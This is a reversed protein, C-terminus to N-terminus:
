GKYPRKVVDNYKANKNKLDWVQSKKSSGGEIISQLDGPGSELSALQEPSLLSNSM